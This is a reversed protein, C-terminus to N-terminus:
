RSVEAVTRRLSRARDERVREISRLRGAETEAECGPCDFVVYGATMGVLGSHLGAEHHAARQERTDSPSYLVRQM